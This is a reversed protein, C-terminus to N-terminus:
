ILDTLGLNTLVQARQATTLTQQTTLLMSSTVNVGAVALQQVNLANTKIGTFDVTLIINGSNDTIHLKGPEDNVVIPASDINAYEGSFQIVNQIAQTVAKNQVPNTSNRSLVSDVSVTNEDIKNNLATLNNSTWTKLDNRLQVLAQKIDM